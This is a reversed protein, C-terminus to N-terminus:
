QNSTEDPEGVAELTEVIGEIATATKQYSELLEGSWYKFALAENDKIRKLQKKYEPLKDATAVHSPCTYCYGFRPCFERYLCYGYLPEGNTMTLGDLSHMEPYQRLDELNQRLTEPNTDYPYLKADLNAMVTAVDLMEGPPYRTYSRKTTAKHRHKLWVRVFELSYGNAILESARTSRLIAGTFYALENNSDRIDCYKILHCVARVMPNLKGAIMPPRKVPLMKQYDPFDLPGLNQYHCFLYPFGEGFLATIYEQQRIILRVFDNPLPLRHKDKPKDREFELWWSDPEQIICNKKLHCLEGPRSGLWAGLMFQLQLSEPLRHINDRIAELVSDELPDPESYFIKTSDFLLSSLNSCTSFYNERNGWELFSKLSSQNARLSAKKLHSREQIWYISIFKRNIDRMQTIKKKQLFRGFLCLYSCMSILSAPAIGKRLRDLAYHKCLDKFWDDGCNNFHLFIQNGKDIDFNSYLERFDWRDNEFKWSEQSIEIGQLRKINTDWETGDRRFQQGCGLCIKLSVQKQQSESFHQRKLVVKNQGCNLCAYEPLYELGPPQFFSHILKGKLYIKIPKKIEKTFERGCDKCMYSQVQGSEHLHPRGLKFTHKSGCNSCFIEVKPATKKQSNKTFLQGCNKCLCRQTLGHPCVRPKGETITKSSGCHICNVDASKAVRVFTQLQFSRKCSHCLYRTVKQGNVLRNYGRKRVNSSDCRPCQLKSM